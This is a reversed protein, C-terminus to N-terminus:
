SDTTDGLCGMADGPPVVQMEITGYANATKSEPNPEATRKQQGSSKAMRMTLLRVRFQPPRPLNPSPPSPLAVAAQEDPEAVPTRFSRARIAPPRPLSQSPSALLAVAAETNRSHVMAPVMSASVGVDESKSALEDGAMARRSMAPSAPYRGFSSVAAAESGAVAGRVPPHRSLAAVCLQASLRKEPDKSLCNRILAMMASPAEGFWKVPYRIECKVTRLTTEEINSSLFPHKLSLAQYYVLGASFIDAREDYPYGACVEPAVYGASGRRKQMEAADGLDVADGLNALVPQMHVGMLINEPKIDRHMIRLAHLHSLAASLGHMLIALGTNCMPGSSLHGSLDGSSCLEMVIVCCARAEERARGDLDTSKSEKREKRQGHDM